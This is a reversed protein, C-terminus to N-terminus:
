HENFVYGDGAPDLARGLMARVEAADEPHVFNPVDRIRPTPTDPSLGLIKWIEPSWYLSQTELDADYIGFGASEAALRYHQENRRLQEILERDALNRDTNQWGVESTRM